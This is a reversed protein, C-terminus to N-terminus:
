KVSAKFANFLSHNWVELQFNVAEGEGAPSKENGPVGTYTAAMKDQRNLFTRGAVLVPM